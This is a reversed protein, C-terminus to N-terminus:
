GQTASAYTKRQVLTLKKKKGLFTDNAHQMHTHTHRNHQHKIGQVASTTPTLLDSHTIFLPSM